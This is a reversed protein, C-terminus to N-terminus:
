VGKELADRCFGSWYIVPQSSRGQDKGWPMGHKILILPRSLLVVLLLLIPPLLISLWLLL